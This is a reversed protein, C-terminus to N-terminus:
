EGGDEVEERFRVETDPDARYLGSNFHPTPDGDVYLEGSIITEGTTGSKVAVEADWDPLLNAASDGEACELTTEYDGTSVIVSTDDRWRLIDVDLFAYDAILKSDGYNEMDVFTRVKLTVIAPNDSTGSGPSMIQIGLLGSLGFCFSRRSQSVAADDEASM